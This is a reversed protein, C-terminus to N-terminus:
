CVRAVALADIHAAGADDLARAASRLTAGTTIVDDVLLLGMGEVREVTEYAGQSSAQRGARGLRRQDASGHKVLADAMPVGALEGLERVIGEMHDFGRRRYARATAPVFVLADAGALVGGYRDPAETQAHEATDLLMQAFLPALRREGGDKYARVIRPLPDEFVATALVRDLPSEDDAASAGSVSAGTPNGCETCIIYGGPAGCRMCSTAPDILILRELCAPCILAGPRECGACRTPALVELFPRTLRALEKGRVNAKPMRVPVSAEKTCVACVSM